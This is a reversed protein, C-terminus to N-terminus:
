RSAALIRPIQQGAELFAWLLLGYAAAILAMTAFQFGLGAMAWRDSAPTDEIYPSEISLRFSEHQRQFCAQALYATASAIASALLAFWFLPMLAAVAAAMTPRPSATQGVLALAAIAAGGSVLAATKIAEVALSITSKFLDLRTVMAMKHHEFAYDTDKAM